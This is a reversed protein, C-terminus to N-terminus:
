LPLEHAEFDGVLDQLEQASYAWYRSWWSGLVYRPILPVKGGFQTYETLAGTYDHGYGFFYWDQLDHGPRPAVWEGGETFVVARSDDHVAWGDRSVLGEGLMVPGGTNDLTRRTGRLNGSDRLGPAWTVPEDNLRLTIALNTASFPGSDLQYRVL